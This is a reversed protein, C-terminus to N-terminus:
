VTALLENMKAKIMDIAIHNEGGRPIIIDAYQKSPEIFELYMPRVTKEYQSLISDLTRGREVLDRRIRRMLCIDMPTDVFIKIDMINRLSPNAFLLIGEIVIIPVPEIKLTEKKRTHTSYDYQPLDVSKNQKLQEIQELLHQHDLAGPHDFNSQERVALPMDIKDKYYFDEAIVNINGKKFFKVLNYSVLTKGSGSAGTIGVIIPKKM